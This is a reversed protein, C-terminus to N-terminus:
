ADPAGIHDFYSEGPHDSTAWGCRCQIGYQAAGLVPEHKTVDAIFLGTTGLIREAEGITLYTGFGRPHPRETLAKAGRDTTM